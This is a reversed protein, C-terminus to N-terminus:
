RTFAFVADAKETEGRLARVILRASLFSGTVSDRRGGLAFLHRPYNRHPGIYMIGDATDGYSVDWGYEPMLGSIAPYMTLLEYMLQGTRQVVAADRRRGAVEPQDAGTVVLRDDDTWRIRHRPEHTDALAVRSAFLQRRVTAPVPATLVAYGDRRTFHRRLPKFEDTASGTAVVVTQARLVGRDTTIEVDNRGPRVRTASTREFIPVRRKVSAAALGICARYPDLVFADGQRVAVPADRRALSALQKSTLLRADLGAESRADADRRLAKEGERSTLTLLDVPALNCRINARRLLAAADLAGRRWSEFIRRAARLGHLATIERFAPGPEPLLFGASRGSAGRGIREAEIVVARIGAVACAYAIACGTLGGGIIVVDATQEGRFRPYDPLRSGPFQHIWPATGYRTKV